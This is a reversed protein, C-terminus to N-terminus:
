GRRHRNQGQKNDSSNASPGKSLEALARSLRKARATNTPSRMNPLLLLEFGAAIDLFRGQAEGTVRDITVTPRIGNQKAILVLFGTFDNYWNLAKRGAKGKITRLDKAAVLCASAVTSLQNCFDSLFEGAKSGVEPNAALMERVKQSIEMHHSQRFGTELGRLYQEAEHLQRAIAALTTTINKTNRKNDPNLKQSMEFEDYGRGMVEELRSRIDQKEAPTMNALGLDSVVQELNIDLEYLSAIAAGKRPLRAM